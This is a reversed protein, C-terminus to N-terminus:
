GISQRYLQLNSGGVTVKGRFSVFFYKLINLHTYQQDYPWKAKGKPPMTFSKYRNKSTIDLGGPMAGLYYVFDYEQGPKLNKYICSYPPNRVDVSCYGSYQPERFHVIVYDAASNDPLIVTASLTTSSLAKFVLDKADVHFVFEIYLIDARVTQKYLSYLYWVTSGRLKTRSQLQIPPECNDGSAFCARAVVYFNVAEPIGRLMCQPDKGSAPVSCM